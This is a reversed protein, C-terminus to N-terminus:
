PGYEHRKNTNVFNTYEFSESLIKIIKEGAHGDAYLDHQELNLMEHIGTEAALIKEPDAGALVNVGIEVLEIWETQERLTICPKKFFYAEKQIGGSDTFVGQCNSLLVIM